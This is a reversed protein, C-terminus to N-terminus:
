VTDDLRYKSDLSLQVQYSMNHEMAMMVNRGLGKQGQTNQM